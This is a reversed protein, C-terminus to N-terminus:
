GALGKLRLYKILYLEGFMTTPRHEEVVVRISNEYEIAAKLCANGEKEGYNDDLNDCNLSVLFDHIDIKESEPGIVAGLMYSYVWSPIVYSENELHRKIHYCINSVLDKYQYLLSEGLLPYNNKFYSPQTDNEFQQWENLGFVVEDRDEDIKFYQLPIFAQFMEEDSILHPPYDLLYGELSYKQKIVDHTFM